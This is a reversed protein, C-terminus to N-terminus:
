SFNNENDYNIILERSNPQEYITFVCITQYDKINTGTHTLIGGKKYILPLRSLYIERSFFYEMTQSFLFIHRFILDTRLYNM